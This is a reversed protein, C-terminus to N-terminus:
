IEISRYSLKFPKKKEISIFVYIGIYKKNKKKKAFYHGYVIHGYNGNSYIWRHFCPKRILIKNIPGTHVYNARLFYRLM